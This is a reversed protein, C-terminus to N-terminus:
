KRNQSRSTPVSELLTEPDLGRVAVICALNDAEEGEVPRWAGSEFAFVRGLEDVACVYPAAEGRLSALCALLPQFPLPDPGLAESAASAPEPRPVDSSSALAAAVLQQTYPHAAHGLLDSGALTEVLRGRHIVAVRHALPAVPSLLHTVLLLAVGRRSLEVFGDLITQLHEPDAGALPEDALLVETRRDLAAWLSLARKDWGSLHGIRVARRTELHERLRRALILDPDAREAFRDLVAATPLDPDFLTDPDQFAIRLRRRLAALPPPDPRGVEPKLRVLDHGLAHIETGPEVGVTRVVAEILTSKGAGSEGVVLMIEGARLEFSVDQLVLEGQRRIRLNRVRLVPPRPATLGFGPAPPAFSGPSPEPPPTWPRPRGPRLRPGELEVVRDTLQPLDEQRAAFIVVALQGHSKQRALESFFQARLVPDLAAAPDDCLLVGRGLLSCAVALRQRQGSSLYAPYRDLLLPSLGVIELRREAILGGAQQECALRLQEAASLAPNLHVGPESLVVGVSRGVVADLEDRCPGLSDHLLRGGLAVYGSGSVGPPAWGLWASLLLSKGCGNPGVLGVAEGPRLRFGLGEIRPEGGLKLCFGRVRLEMGAERSV